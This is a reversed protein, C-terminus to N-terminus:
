KLPWFWVETSSWYCASACQLDNMDAPEVLDIHGQTDWDGGNVHYFSVIGRRPRIQRWAQYGNKYVEPQGLRRRLFASLIKQSQEIRKGAFRGAKVTMHGPSPQIGAALLAMSVRVACTNRMDFSNAYEPRGISAYLAATDVGRKDGEYKPKKPYGAALLAYPPRNM